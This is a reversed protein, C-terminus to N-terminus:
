RNERNVSKVKLLLLYVTYDNTKRKLHVMAQEKEYDSQREFFEDNSKMLGRLLYGKCNNCVHM